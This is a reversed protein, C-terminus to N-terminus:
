NYFDCFLKRKIIQLCENQRPFERPTKSEWFAMALRESDVKGVFLLVNERGIERSM